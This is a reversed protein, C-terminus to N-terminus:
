RAGDGSRLLGAGGPVYAEDIEKVEYTERVKVGINYGILLDALAHGDILVIKSPVASVFSWASKPFGATTVFVGKGAKRADLSGAFERVASVPVSVGPRYRKAQIYIVDLGLVDLPVSGDIGGDGRRGLHRALDPRCGYGMALLLEIVLHEFFEPREAHVRALLRAMLREHMMHATAAIWAEPEAMAAAAGARTASSPMPGTVAGPSPVTSAGEEGAKASRYLGRRQEVAGSRELYALAWRLRNGFVTEKGSPLSEVREQTTLGLRSAVNDMLPVFPMDASTEALAHLVPQMLGPYDPIVL